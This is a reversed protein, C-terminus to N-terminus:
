DDPQDAVITLTEEFTDADADFTRIRFGVDISDGVDLEAAEDRLATKDPDTVDYLEVSIQSDDPFESHVTVSQTGQNKIRLLGNDPNPEDAAGGDQDFEYVSDTGLGLNPKDLQQGVGPFNFSVTGGGMSSRGGNEEAGEGRESLTLLALNDAAVEVNVRRDASVSTFAGSGVLMSSAASTSALGALLTRRKM